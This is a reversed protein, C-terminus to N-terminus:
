QGESLVGFPDDESEPSLSPSSSAAQQIIHPASSTSPQPNDFTSAEKQVEKFFVTIPFQKKQRKLEDFMRQLPEMAETILRTVKMSREMIPDYDMIKEKLTQAIQFVEGFKELTWKAPEAETEEEEDEEEAPSRVFDDLDENMLVEHHEEIHDVVEEAIMDVLGDGGVERATRIIMNVERDIGPFGKFDHVVESWLNKWCANVTEPKLEDMAGKIFTIADAISFSKWCDMIEINPNADIAAQIMEFVQRTYIAKICRIIGQSLPQLLSTTNPPLFLVQVNPDEIAISEPHGPSNDIILLVKFPLGEKELYKRVEPIFCEHFWETFLVATVWAKLNHQWFVPLYNKNKHKLAHPTKMQYVVGPKIMHGAANGCLVLTLRDKWSKFGPAQKATKHIYTRNPMKKWFLGTEDCNFVQKPHYGGEEIVKKLDTMFMAAAEEDGTSTDRTIKRNKLNFRNRFRHLWGRSATFPKSEDKTKDKKQFDEYLTLAKQRLMNGDIPMRKRSMDEVWLNLAKEVKVLVKDRVTSTVKATQPAVSFSARIKDRHKMVERISSENKGYLRAIEAYSKKEKEIMDLIKVKESIPLVERSRKPKSASGTSNSKRKPAM